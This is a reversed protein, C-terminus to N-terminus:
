ERRNASAGNVEPRGERVSMLPMPRCTEFTGFASRRRAGCTPEILYGITLMDAGVPFMAFFLHQHSEQMRSTVRRRSVKM